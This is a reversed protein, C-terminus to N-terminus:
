DEMLGDMKKLEITIECMQIREQFWGTSLLSPVILPNTLKSHSYPAHKM